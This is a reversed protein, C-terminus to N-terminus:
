TEFCVVKTELCGHYSHIYLTFLVYAILIMEVM